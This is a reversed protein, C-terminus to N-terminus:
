RAGGGAYANMERAIRRGIDHGDESSGQHLHEIHVWSRPAHGDLFPHGGGRAITELNAKERPALVAEPVGTANNVLTLGPQLLGGNDHLQPKVGILDMLTQALGGNAPPTGPALPTTSGDPGPLWDPKPFAGLSPNNKDKDAPKGWGGDNDDQNPVDGPGPDPLDPPSDSDEDSTDTDPNLSDDAGAMDDLGSSDDLGGSDSSSDDDLGTDSLDTPDSSESGEADEQDKQDDQPVKAFPNLVANGVRLLYSKNPDAFLTDQLGFTEFLGDVAIGAAKEAAEKPTILHNPDSNEGDKKGQQKPSKWAVGADQDAQDAQVQADQARQHYIGARDRDKQAAARARQARERAKQAQEQAKKKDAELFQTAAKADYKAADADAKAAADDHTKAADNARKEEGQLKTISSRLKHAKTHLKNAQSQGETPKAGEGKYPPSFLSGPLYWKDPFQADAAGAAEPGYAVNNHAGGSEVNQGDFTGAMHGAAGPKALVGINFIGGLGRRFGLAAFDSMTNFARVATNRGLLAQYIGSMFMSCDLQGLEYPTGAVSKIYAWAREIATRDGGAVQGPLKPSATTRGSQADKQKESLHHDPSEIGGGAYGKPPLEPHAQQVNDIDGYRAQIYRIGAVINSVPDYINDSLRPDRYARFTSGITQMLGRSPDGAAANSDWNNIANPNGRSERGIITRLRPAWHADVGTISMAQAIWADVDGNGVWPVSAMAGGVAKRGMGIWGKATEIAHSVFHKPIDTLMTRWKSSDGPTANTEGIVKSFLSKVANVPNGLLKTTFGAADKVGDWASGVWGGLDGLFGGAARIPQGMQDNASRRGSKRNLEVITGYGLEKSAEPTLVSEGPSLIANVNDIGPAYGPITGPGTWVGGGAAKFSVSALQHHGGFVSDIKNWVPRIGGDYVHEVIWKIPKSAISELKGWETKVWSVTNGFFDRVKGLAKGISNVVPELTVSYVDHIATGLVGLSAKVGDVADGVLTKAHDWAGSFDGTLLDKWFGFTNKAFDWVDSFIRKFDDFFPKVFGDYTSKFANGVASLAGNVIERFKESHNYAYIIGATLAAIAVVAIGIPNADMAADLLWQVATWDKVASTVGKFLKPLETVSKTVGTLTTMAGKGASSIAELGAKAGEGLASAGKGVGKAAGGLMPLAPLATMAMMAMDTMGGGGGSGDDAHAAGATLAMLALPAAVVGARAGWRGARAFRSPREEEELFAAHERRTRAADRANRAADMGNLAAGQLYLATDSSRANRAAAIAANTGTGIGRTTAAIGRGTGRVTAGIGQGVKRGFANKEYGFLNGLANGGKIVGLGAALGMTGLGAWQLADSHGHLLQAADVLMHVFKTLPGQTAEGLDTLNTNLAGRLDALQARLSQQSQDAGEVHKNPDIGRAALDLKEKTQRYGVQPDEDLLNMADKTTVQDGYIMKMVQEVSMDPNQGKALMKNFGTLNDYTSRWTILKKREGEQLSNLVKNFSEGNVEGKGQFREVVARQLPDMAQVQAALAAKADISVMNPDIHVIGTKKDTKKEIAKNINEIAGGLQVDPDALWQQVQRTSIGFQNLVAQQPGQPSQLTMIGHQLMQSANQASIGHQTMTAFAANLGSINMGANKATEEVTGIARAYEELTTKSLRATEVGVSMVGNVNDLSIAFNGVRSGAFDHMTTTLQDVVTSLDSGEAKAAQVGATLVKLADAGHYGAREILLLAKSQENASTGWQAQLDLVGKRLGDLNKSSEGAGTVLLNLGKELDAARSAGVAFAGALGVGVAMTTNAAATGFRGMAGAAAVTAEEQRRTAEEHGRQATVFAASAASHERTAAALENEARTQTALARLYRASNEDRTKALVEESNKIAANKRKEAAEVREAAQIQREETRDMISNASRMQTEMRAVYRDLQTTPAAFYDHGSIARVMENAATEARRTASGMQAEFIKMELKPIVDFFVGNGSV